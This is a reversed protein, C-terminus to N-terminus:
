KKNRFRQIEEMEKRTLEQSVKNLEQDSINNEDLFADRQLRWYKMRIERLERNEIRDIEEINLVEKFQEEYSLFDKGM